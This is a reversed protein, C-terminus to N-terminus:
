KAMVECVDAYVQDFAEDGDKKGDLYVIDSHSQVDKFHKQYMPWVVEDFYGPPDAPNYVRTLRRQWCEEKDLTFFYKKDFYPLLPKYNFIMIGELIVLRMEKTPNKQIGELIQQLDNKMQKFNVATLDDWNCHDVKEVYVLNEHNEPWFYDDMCMVHTHPFNQKLRAALSTKGGNTVGSLGLVLYDRSM